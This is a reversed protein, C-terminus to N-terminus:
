RRLDEFSTYPPPESRGQETGYGLTHNYNTYNIGSELQAGDDVPLSTLDSSEQTQGPSLPQHNPQFGYVTAITPSQDSNQGMEPYNHMSTPPPSSPGM